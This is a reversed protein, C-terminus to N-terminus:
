QITTPGRRGQSPFFLLMSLLSCGYPFFSLHGLKPSSLANGTPPYWGYIGWALGISLAVGAAFFVFLGMLAVGRKSPPTYETQMAYASTVVGAAGCGSAFRHVNPTQYPHATQTPLFSPLFPNIPKTYSPHIHRVPGRVRGEEQQALHVRDADRVSFDRGWLGRLGVCVQTRM